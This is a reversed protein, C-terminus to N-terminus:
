NHLYRWTHSQLLGQYREVTIHLNTKSDPAEFATFVCTNRISNPHTVNVIQFNMKFSSGGKDGGLKVWLESNPIAENRWTLRGVRSISDDCLITKSFGLITQVYKDNEDTLATVKKVLDPIYCYATARVEEGGSKKM